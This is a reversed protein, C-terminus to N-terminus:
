PSSLQEAYQRRPSICRQVEKEGTASARKEEVLSAEHEEHRGSETVCVIFVGQYKQQQM